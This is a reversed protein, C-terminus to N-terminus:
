LAIRNRQRQYFPLYLTLLAMLSWIVVYSLHQWYYGPITPEAISDPIQNLNSQNGEIRESQLLLFG